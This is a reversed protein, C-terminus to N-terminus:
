ATQKAFIQVDSYDLTQLGRKERSKGLKTRDVPTYKLESGTVSIGSLVMATVYAYRWEEIVDTVGQAKIKELDTFLEANRIVEQIHGLTSQEVALKVRSKMFDVAAEDQPVSWSNELPFDQFITETTPNELCVVDFIAFNVTDNQKFQWLYKIILHQTDTTELIFAFKTPLATNSDHEKNLIGKSERYAIRASYPFEVWVRGAPLKFKGYIDVLEALSINAVIDEIVAVLHETLNFRVANYARSQRDKYLDVYGQSAVPTNSCLDDMFM